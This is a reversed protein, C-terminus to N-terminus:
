KARPLKERQENLRDMLEPNRAREVSKEAPQGHLEPHIFFGRESASKEEEVPTRHANAYADQRTGTAQWSVKM